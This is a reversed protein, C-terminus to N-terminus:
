EVVSASFPNRIFQTGTAKQYSELANDCQKSCREPMVRLRAGKGQAFKVAREVVVTFATKCLSWMERGHKERYRGDYGPRDIVCALGVVPLGVLLDTLDQMFRSHEDRNLDVLWRFDHTKNRIDYSHLPKGELQPWKVRFAAVMERAKEEDSEHVLIGGLAFWDRGSAGKPDFDPHRTGSDDMYFNVVSSMLKVHPTVM